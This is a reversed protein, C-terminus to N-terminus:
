GSSRVRAAASEPTLGRQPAAPLEYGVMFNVSRRLDCCRRITIGTCTGPITPLEMRPGGGQWGDAPMGNIGILKQGLIPEYLSYGAPHQFLLVAPRLGARCPEKYLLRSWLRLVM